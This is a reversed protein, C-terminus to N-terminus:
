VATSLPNVMPILTCLAMGIWLVDTDIGHMLIEM